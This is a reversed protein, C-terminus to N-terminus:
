PGPVTIQWFIGQDDMWQGSIGGIVPGEVLPRFYLRYVGPAMPARVQFQFWAVQNPGVYSV